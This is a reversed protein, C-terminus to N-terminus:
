EGARMWSCGKKELEEHIGELESMLSTAEEEYVVVPAPNHQVASLEDSTAKMKKEPDSLLELHWDTSMDGFLMMRGPFVEHLDSMESQTQFFDDHLESLYNYTKLPLHTPQLAKLVSLDSCIAWIDPMVSLVTGLNYKGFRETHTVLKRFTAHKERNVVLWDDESRSMVDMPFKCRDALDSVRGEVQYVHDLYSQQMAKVFNKKGLRKRLLGRGQHFEEAEEIDEVLLGGSHVVSDLYQTTNRSFHSLEM